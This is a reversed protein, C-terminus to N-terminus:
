ISVNSLVNLHEPCWPDAVVRLPEFNQVGVGLVSKKM